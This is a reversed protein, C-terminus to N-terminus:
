EEKNRETSQEGSQEHYARIQSALLGLRQITERIAQKQADISYTDNPTGHSYRVYVTVGSRDGTDSQNSM